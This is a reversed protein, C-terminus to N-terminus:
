PFYVVRTGSTTKIFKVLPINELLVSTDIYYHIIFFEILYSVMNSTKHEAPRQEAGARNHEAWSRNTSTWNKDKTQMRNERVKPHDHVINYQVCLFIFTLHLILNFWLMNVLSSFFQICISNVATIYERSISTLWICWCQWTEVLWYRKFVYNVTCYFTNWEM